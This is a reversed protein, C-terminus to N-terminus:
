KKKFKDRLNYLYVEAKYKIEELGGKELVVMYVGLGGLLLLAIVLVVVIAGKNATGAPRINIKEMASDLKEKVGPLDTKAAATEKVEVTFFATRGNYTVTVTQVGVTSLVKPSVSYGTYVATSVGNVTERLVLGATDLSEGKKYSLRAPTSAVERKDAEITQTRVTIPFTCSFDKYVLTMTQTGSGSVIAPEVTYDSSEDAFSGDDYFVRFVLGTGDFPEGATFEQKNPLKVMGIGTIVPEGDTVSVPFSCRRGQYEVNLMLVRSAENYEGPFVDFGDSLVEGRGDAYRVEMTLGELRILQGMRYEVTHPLTHVALSEAQKPRVTVRIARSAAAAGQANSVVCYYYITGDTTTPASYEPGNAGSVAYGGLGEPTAGAYWQYSVAGGDGSLASVSLLAYDGAFCEIDSSASIQPSVSIVSLNCTISGTLPDDTTIVFSYEGAYQATGSVYLGGESATLQLGAPFNGCSATCGEALDAIRYNVAAGAYVSGLNCFGDASAPAIFVSLILLGLIPFLLIRKQM